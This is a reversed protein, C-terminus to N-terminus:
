IKRPLDALLDVRNRRIVCLFEEKPVQLENSARNRKWTNGTLKLLLTHAVLLFMKDDSPGIGLHNEGQVEEM